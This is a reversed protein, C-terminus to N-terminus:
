PFVREWAAFSVQGLGVRACGLRELHASRNCYLAHFRAVKGVLPSLAYADHQVDGLVLAKSSGRFLNGPRLTVGSYRKAPCLIVTARPNWARREVHPLDDGPVFLQTPLSDEFLGADGLVAEVGCKGVVFCVGVLYVLLDFIVDARWFIPSFTM